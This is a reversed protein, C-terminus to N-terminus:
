KARGSDNPKGSQPGPPKAHHKKAPARGSAAGTSRNGQSVSAGKNDQQPSAPSRTAPRQSTPGAPPPTSRPPRAQPAPTPPRTSSPQARQARGDPPYVTERGAPNHPHRGATATRRQPPPDTQQASSSRRAPSPPQQVVAHDPRSVVLTQTDRSLQEHRKNSGARSKAHRISVTTINQGSLTSIINPSIGGNVVRQKRVDFDMRNLVKTRDYIRKADRRNVYHRSPKPDCFYRTAIFTYCDSDLGFNFGAMVRNGRYVIGTGYRLSTYPPLPAWGCYTRDYRWCVWSPSWVTDPWWCWGYRAHRFWRGYHFAAWGWTYDSLWYWGYDSYVWRGNNSYPRWDAQYTVVSPRWCWSYGEIFVWEGYPALTEYLYDVTVDPPLHTMAETDETSPAAAPSIGEQLLQKDRGMAAEIIGSPAGLDALYIIRDADLDFFRLSNEVYTLIVSQDVGAQVLRVLEEYASGSDAEATQTGVPVANTIRDPPLHTDAAAAPAQSEESHVGVSGLLVIVLVGLVMRSSFFDAAKM